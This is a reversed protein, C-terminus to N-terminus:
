SSPTVALTKADIDYKKVASPRSLPFTWVSYTTSRPQTFLIACKCDAGSPMSRFVKGIAQVGGASIIVHKPWEHMADTYNPEGHESPIHTLYVVRMDLLPRHQKIVPPIYRLFPPSVFVAHVGKTVYAEAVDAVDPYNGVVTFTRLMLENAVLSAQPTVSHMQTEVHAVEAASLRRSPLLVTERGIQWHFSKSFELPTPDRPVPGRQLTATDVLTFGPGRGTGAYRYALTINTPHERPAYLLKTLRMGKPLGVPFIVPFTARAAVDRLEVSMPESVVAASNVIVAVNSGSLWVRVGNYFKAAVGTGVIVAAFVLAGCVSLLRTRERIAAARVNCHISEVQLEPVPILDRAVRGTKAFDSLMNSKRKAIRYYKTEM